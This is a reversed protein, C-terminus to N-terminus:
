NLDQDGSIQALSGRNKSSKPVSRDVVGHLHRELNARQRTRESILGVVDAGAGRGRNTGDWKVYSAHKVLVVESSKGEHEGFTVLMTLGRKGTGRPAVL